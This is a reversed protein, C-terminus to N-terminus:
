KSINLFLNLCRESCPFSNTSCLNDSHFPNCPTKHYELTMLIQFPNDSSDSSKFAAYESTYHNLGIFDCSGKIMAVEKTTFRPLHDGPAQQLSIPYHGFVIPDLIRCFSYYEV